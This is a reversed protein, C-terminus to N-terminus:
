VLLFSLLSIEENLAERRASKLGKVKLSWEMKSLTEMNNVVITLNWQGEM